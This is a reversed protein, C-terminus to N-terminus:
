TQPQTGWQEVLILGCRGLGIPWRENEVRRRYELGAERYSLAGTLAQMRTNQGNQGDAGSVCVGCEEDWSLEVGRPKLGKIKRFHAAFRLAANRITNNIYRSASILETRMSQEDGHRRM